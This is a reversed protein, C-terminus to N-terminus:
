AEIRLPVETVVAEPLMAQAFGRMQGSSARATTPKVIEEATPVLIIHPEPQPIVGAVFLASFM